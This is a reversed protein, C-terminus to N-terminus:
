RRRTCRVLGLFHGHGIRMEISRRVGGNEYRGALTKRASPPQWYGVVSTVCAISPSRLADDHESGPIRKRTVDGASRDRRAMVDGDGYGGIVHVLREPSPNPHVFVVAARRQLEDFLPTLRADGLTSV